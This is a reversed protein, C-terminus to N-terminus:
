HRGFPVRTARRSPRLIKGHFLARGHPVSTKNRWPQTAAIKAGDMGVQSSQICISPSPAIYHALRGGKSSDQNRRDTLEKSAGESLSGCVHLERVVEELGNQQRHHESSDHRRSRERAAQLVSTGLPARDTVKNDLTEVWLGRELCTLNRIENILSTM